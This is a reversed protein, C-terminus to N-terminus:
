ALRAVARYDIKALAARQDALDDELYWDQTAASGHGLLEKVELQGLGFRRAHTAISRRLMQITLHGIGARLGAAKVQDLCKTGATGELWPGKRWVGPFLWESETRPIWRQLIPALEPHIAVLRASPRTKLRRRKRGRLRIFREPMHVDSVKLGLVEKKRMGTYLYSYGAAQLRAEPWGGRLAEADLLDLLDVVQGVTLHRALAVAGGDGEEEDDDEDFSVWDSRVDWPNVRLYKMGAAYNVAARFSNLYSRNTIAKRHSSANLWEVIAVPTIDSTKKLGPLGAFEDLVKRMKDYTAKRRHPPHYQALVERRFQSYSVSPM